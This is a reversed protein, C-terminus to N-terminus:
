EAPRFSDLIGQIQQRGAAPPTTVILILIGHRAPSPMALAYYRMPDGDATTNGELARAQVGGQRVMYDRDVSFRDEDTEGRVARIIASGNITDGSTTKVWVWSSNDALDATNNFSDGTIGALPQIRYWGAPFSIEYGLQTGHYTGAPLPQTIGAFAPTVLLLTVLSLLLSFSRKM